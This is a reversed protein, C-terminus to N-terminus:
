TKAATRSKVGLFSFIFFASFTIPIIKATMSTIIRHTYKKTKCYGSIFFIGLDSFPIANRAIFHLIGLAAATVRQESFSAFVFDHDIKRSATDTDIFLSSTVAGVVRFQDPGVQKRIGCHVHATKSGINFATHEPVPAQYQERISGARKM